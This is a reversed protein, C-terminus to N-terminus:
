NVILGLTDSRILLPLGVTKWQKGHYIVESIDSLAANM